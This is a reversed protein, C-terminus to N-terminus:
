KYKAELELQRVTGVYPRSAPSVSREIEALLEACAVEYAPIAIGGSEATAASGDAAYAAKVSYILLLISLTKKM